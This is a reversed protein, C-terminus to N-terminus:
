NLCVGCINCNFDNECRQRRGRTICYCTEEDEEEEEEVDDYKDGLEWRYYNYQEEWRDPPFYGKPVLKVSQCGGLESRITLTELRRPYKEERLYTIFVDPECHENKWELIYSWAHSGGGAIQLETSVVGNRKTYTPACHTIDDWDGEDDSDWEDEDDEEGDAGDSECPILHAEDIGERTIPHTNSREMTTTRIICDYVKEAKLKNKFECFYVIGLLRTERGSLVCKGGRKMKEGLPDRLPDVPCLFARNGFTLKASGQYSATIKIRKLKNKL